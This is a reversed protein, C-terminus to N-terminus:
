GFGDGSVSRVHRTLLSMVCSTGKDEAAVAHLYDPSLALRSFHFERPDPDSSM